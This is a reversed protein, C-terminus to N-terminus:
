LVVVDYINMENINEVLWGSIISRLAGSNEKENFASCKFISVCGDFWSPISFSDPNLPLSV